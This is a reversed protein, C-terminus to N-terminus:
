RQGVAWGLSLVAAQKRVQPSQLLSVPQLPSLLSSMTAGNSVYLKLLVIVLRQHSARREQENTVRNLQIIGRFSPPTMHKLPFSHMFPRTFGGSSNRYGLLWGTIIPADRRRGLPATSGLTQGSCRVNKLLFWYFVFKRILKKYWLTSFVGVYRRM